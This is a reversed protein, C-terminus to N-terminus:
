TLSPLAEPSFITTWADLRVRRPYGRKHNLCHVLDVLKELDAQLRPPSQHLMFMSRIHRDIPLRLERSIYWRCAKDDKTLAGCQWNKIGLLDRLTSVNQLKKPSDTTKLTSPCTVFGPLTIRTPAGALYVTTGSHCENGSDVEAVLSSHPHHPSNPPSPYAAVATIDSSEPLHVTRLPKIHPTKIESSM